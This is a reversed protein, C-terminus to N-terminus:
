EEGYVIKNWEDKIWVVDRSTEGLGEIGDLYFMQSIQKWLSKLDKSQIVENFIHTKKEDPNGFRSKMVFRVTFTKM